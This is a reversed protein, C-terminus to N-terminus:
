GSIHRTCGGCGVLLRRIVRSPRRRRKERQMRGRLCRREGSLLGHQRLQEALQVFLRESESVGRVSSGRQAQWELYLEHACGVRPKDAAAEGCGGQGESGVSGTVRCSEAGHTADPLAGELWTAKSTASIRGGYEGDGERPEKRRM